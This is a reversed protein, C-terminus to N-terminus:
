EDFFGSHIVMNKIGLMGCARISRETAVLNKGAGDGLIKGAPAHAQIFKVGRADAAKKTKQITDKWDPSMFPHNEINLVDYFSYDLYKFGADAFIDVTEEESLEYERIDSLTTAIKM